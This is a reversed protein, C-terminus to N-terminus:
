DALFERILRAHEASHTAEPGHGAGHITAVHATPILPAIADVVALLSAPSVTGRTLLVPRDIRALAEPDLRFADPDNRLLSRANHRMAELFEVPIGGLAEQLQGTPDIRETFDAIAADIEGDAILRMMEGFGVLQEVVAEGGPSDPDVNGFLGPEHCVLRRVVDPREAALRLAVSSGYSNAVVDVPGIGLAEVLGAADAVDDHITGDEPRGESETHGRRDYCTVRFHPSLAGVTTAWARRDVWGGHILLVDSGEGVTDYALKLGNVLAYPM